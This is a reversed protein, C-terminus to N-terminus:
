VSVEALQRGLQELLTRVSRDVVRDGIRVLAGGVLSPDVEATLKIKSSTRRELDAHLRQLEGANLAVASVVLARQIGQQKEVIAEFEHVIGDLEHLRKKRMILDVFLVVSHVAKGEFAKFLIRRKDSLLVQPTTLLAAVHSGPKLVEWMDRLDELARVTEGRKETLLFLARAYRAAVTADKM